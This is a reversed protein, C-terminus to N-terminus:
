LRTNTNIVQRPYGHLALQRMVMLRVNELHVIAYRVKASKTYNSLWFLSSCSYTQQEFLQVVCKM